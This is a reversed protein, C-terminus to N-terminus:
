ERDRYVCRTFMSFIDDCTSFINDCVHVCRPTRLHSHLCASLTRRHMNSQWNGVVGVSLKRCDIAQANVITSCADPVDMMRPALATDDLLIVMGDMKYSTLATPHIFLCLLGHIM